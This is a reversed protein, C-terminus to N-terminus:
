GGGQGPRPGEGPHPGHPGHHDDPPPGGKDIVLNSSTLYDLTLAPSGSLSVEYQGTYPVAPQTSFPPRPGKVVQELDCRGGAPIKTLTIPALGSLVRLEVKYGAPIGEVKWRVTDGHTLNLTAPTHSVSYRNTSVPAITVSIDHMAM